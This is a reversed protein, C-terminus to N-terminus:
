EDLVHSTTKAVEMCTAIQRIKDSESVLNDNLRWTRDFYAKLALSFNPSRLRAFVAFSRRPDKVVKPSSRYFGLICNFFQDLYHDQTLADFTWKLIHGDMETSSERASREVVKDMGDFVGSFLNNFYRRIFKRDCNLTFALCICISMIPFTIGFCALLALSSLPSYFPSDRWFIPIITILLYVGLFVVVGSFVVRFVIHNTNFLYILLGTFFLFLSVHIMTPIVEVIWLFRSKEIGHAFFARIRAADHPSDRPRDTIQLYQRAWQQILTALMACSLSIALSLFWLSNVWIVYQPPSFPPPRLPTAPISLRTINPDALVQYINELYFAFTDQCNPKLDM